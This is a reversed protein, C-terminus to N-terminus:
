WSTEGAASRERPMANVVARLKGNASRPIAALPELEVAVDGMRDRIRSVIERGHEDTFGPAPVYRLRLRGIAEQVIQAELVPLNGKFVPDLRGVRRGDATVLVDDSRGEVAALVPLTRGCACAAASEAALAGRDGVRYRILPMDANLFGTCVLDGTEGPPLARDGDLVEVLSAEPWLHLRGAECQSAAATTESMGYTEYVPCGFAREMVERQHEYLPEANTAVVRLRLDTAAGEALIGRALAYLSSSYGWIYRVRYRELARVYHRILDPALHYSSCYLQSLAGNWVWFPPRRRDVRTVLQGGFIAWPDHRSVGYWARWRAEVLAYWQMVAARGFWLELPKGTTGSTHEHFMADTSRDDAVFSRPAARLVDKELVPWNELLEWSARDGRRRREAWQERYYPVRTAARNLLLGLREERWASWQGESWSERQLAEEVLADSGAGYRWARLQRGRVGAVVSQLPAPLRQYVRLVLDNV